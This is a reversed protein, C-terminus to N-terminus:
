CDCIQVRRQEKESAGFLNVGSTPMSRCFETSPIRMQRCCVVGFHRFDDFVKGLELAIFLEGNCLDDGVHVLSLSRLKGVHITLTAFVIRRDQHGGQKGKKPYSADISKVQALNSHTQGIQKGGPETQYSCEDVDEVIAGQGTGVVFFM